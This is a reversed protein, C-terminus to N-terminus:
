HQGHPNQPRDEENKNEPIVNYQNPNPTMPQSNDEAMRKQTREIYEKLTKDM